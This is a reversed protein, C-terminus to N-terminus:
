AVVYNATCWQVLLNSQADTHPHHDKARRCRDNCMGKVHYTVCMHTNGTPDHPSAPPPNAANVLLERVRVALRAFRGFLEEKYGPNRAIRNEVAAGGADGDAPM